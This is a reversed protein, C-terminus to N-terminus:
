KGGGQSSILRQYIKILEMLKKENRRMSVALLVQSVSLLILAINMGISVFKSPEM